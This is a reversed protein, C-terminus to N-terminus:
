NKWYSKGQHLVETIRHMPIFIERGNEEKLVLFTEKEIGRLKDGKILIYEKKIKDFYKIHFEHKRPHRHVKHLVTNASKEMGSLPNFEKLILGSFSLLALGVALSIWPTSIYPLGGIGDWIGAWFLVIGLVGFLGWFYGRINYLHVM